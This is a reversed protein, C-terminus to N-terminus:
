PEIGKDASESGNQRLNYAPEDVPLYKGNLSMLVNQILKIVAWAQADNPCSVLMAEGRLRAFIQGNKLRHKAWVDPSIRLRIRKGLINRAGLLIKNHEKDCRANAAPKKAPCVVIPSRLDEPINFPKFPM